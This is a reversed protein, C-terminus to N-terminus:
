QFMYAPLFYPQGAHLKFQNPTLEIQIKAQDNKGLLGLLTRSWALVNTVWVGSATWMTFPKSKLRM